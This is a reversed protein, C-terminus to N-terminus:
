CQISRQAEKGQQLMWGIQLGTRSSKGQYADMYEDEEKIKLGTDSSVNPSM